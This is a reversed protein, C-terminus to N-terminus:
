SACGAIDEAVSRILAPYFGPGEELDLGIPDIVAARASTGETVTEVLNQNFQPESFVCAVGLDRVRDRVEEIRAPSPDSADSLSIAGAASIGFRNEFYHYADHFVVFESEGASSLAARADAMAADIEDRGAAANGRYTDANEPDLAALEDAILDLWVKGNEPDLWAHPDTGEHDHAEHDDDHDHDDHAADTEHAEDHTDGHAGDGHDHDDFVAGERFDLTITGPADLLEVVLAESALTDISGGLWPELAPGVWFVADARELARAESPRLSYDHPSGGARVVLDPTGLGDMVRAVLSHVPAIDTAVRPVEATVATAATLAIVSGILSGASTISM